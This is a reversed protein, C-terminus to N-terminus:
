WDHQWNAVDWAKTSVKSYRQLRVFYKSLVRGVVRGLVHQTSQRLGQWVGASSGDAGVWLYVASSRGLLQWEASSEGVWTGERLTGERPGGRPGERPVERPDERTPPPITYFPFCALPKRVLMQIDREPPDEPPELASHCTRPMDEAAPDFAPTSQRPGPPDYSPDDQIRLLTRSLGTLSWGGLMILYTFGIM